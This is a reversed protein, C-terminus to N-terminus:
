GGWMSYLVFRSTTFFLRPKGSRPVEYIGPRQLSGGCAGKPFHIVASGNPLWGLATSEPADAMTRGGYPRMVGRSVLFAIPVECEASWQALVDRSKPAFAAWVWHGVQGPARAVVRLEPKSGPPGYVATRVTHRCVYLELRIRADTLRCGAVAGPSAFYRRVRRARLDLVFLRGQRDRLLLQHSVNKDPALDLGRLVGLPRGRTTELQIGVQTDRAFGRVPLQPLAEPDLATPSPSALAAAAALVSFAFPM